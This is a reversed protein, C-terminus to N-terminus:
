RYQINYLLLKLGKRMIRHTITNSLGEEAAAWRMSKRFTVIGEAIQKNQSAIVLRSCKVNLASDDTVNGTQEFRLIILFQKRTQIKESMLNQQFNQRTM